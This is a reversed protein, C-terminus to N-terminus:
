NGIVTLSYLYGLTKNEMFQSGLQHNVDIFVDDEISYIYICPEKINTLKEGFNPKYRFRSLPTLQPANKDVHGADGDVGNLPSAKTSWWTKPYKPPRREGPILVYSTGYVILEGFPGGNRVEVVDDPLRRRVLQQQNNDYVELFLSSGSAGNAPEKSEAGAVIRAECSCGDSGFARAKVREDVPIDPLVLTDDKGYDERFVIHRCFKRPEFEELNSLISKVIGAAKKEVKATPSFSKVIEDDDLWLTVQDGNKLLKSAEKVYRQPLEQQNFQDDQVFFVKEDNDWYLIQCAQKEIKVVLTYMIFYIADSVYDAAGQLATSAVSPSNTNGTPASGFGQIREQLSQTANDIDDGQNFTIDWVATATDRVLRYPEDGYTPSPPGTFQTAQEIVAAYSRLQIRFPPVRNALHKMCLLAKLKVHAHDGAVCQALYAAVDPVGQPNGRINTILDNFAYGPTPKNDTNTAYRILEWDIM